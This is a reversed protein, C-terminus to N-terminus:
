PLEHYARQGESGELETVDVGSGVMERPYRKDGSAEVLGTGALERTQQTCGALKAKESESSSPMNRQDTLDM